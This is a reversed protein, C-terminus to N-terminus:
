KGLSIEIVDVAKFGTPGIRTTVGCHHPSWGAETLKTPLSSDQPIEVRLVTAGPVSVVAGGNSHIFAHLADWLKRRQESIGPTPEARQPNIPDFYQAAPYKKRVSDAM